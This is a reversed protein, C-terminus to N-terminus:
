VQIKLVVPRGIREAIAQAEEASFAVEGQPVAVGGKKLLIKSQYEYIRAM